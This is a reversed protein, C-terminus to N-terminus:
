TKLCTKNRSFQQNKTGLKQLNLPSESQIFWTCTYMRGYPSVYMRISANETQTYTFSGPTM